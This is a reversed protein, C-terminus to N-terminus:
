VAHSFSFICMEWNTVDRQPLGGQQKLLFPDTAPVGELVQLFSRWCCCLKIGVSPLVTSLTFYILHEATVTGIDQEKGSNTTKWQWLLSSSGTDFSHTIGEACNMFYSQSLEKFYWYSSMKRRGGHAWSHMLLYLSVHSKYTHLMALCREGECQWATATVVHRMLLPVAWCCCLDGQFVPCLGMAHELGRCLSDIRSERGRVTLRQRDFEESKEEKLCM